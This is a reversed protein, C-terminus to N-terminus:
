AQTQTGQELEVSVDVSVGSRVSQTVICFDEFLELCRGIKARDSPDIDPHLTVRIDGIRMRGGENRVLSGDVTVRLDGVDVRARQLCFLFSAALCNGIAAALLRTANPGSGTGLPPPEDMPIAPIDEAGFDAQFAFGERRALTVTFGHEEM